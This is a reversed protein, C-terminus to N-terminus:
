QNTIWNKIHKKLEKNILLLESYSEYRESDNIYIQKMTRM